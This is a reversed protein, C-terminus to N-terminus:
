AARNLTSSECLRIIEALLQQQHEPTLGALRRDLAARAARRQRKLDDEARQEARDTAHQQRREAVRHDKWDPGVSEPEDILALGPATTYNGDRRAREIEGYGALEHPQLPLGAPTRRLLQPRDTEHRIFEVHWIAPKNKPIRRTIQDIEITLWNRIQYRDGKTVPCPQNAPWTLHRTEFHAITRKLTPTLWNPTTTM